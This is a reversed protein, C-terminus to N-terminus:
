LKVAAALNFIEVGSELIGEKERCRLTQVGGFAATKTKRLSWRALSAIGRFGANQFRLSAGTSGFNKGPAGATAESIVEACTVLALALCVRYDGHM